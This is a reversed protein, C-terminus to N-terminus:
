QRSSLDFRASAEDFWVGYLRYDNSAARQFGYREYLLQSRINDGQTSLGIRRAGRQVLLRVAFSLSALGLGAGQMDPEVAIRDLHGWLQYTTVGIYTAIHGEVRGVWVEVEPTGLYSTFELASNWWLWPFAAHDLEVLEAITADDRTSVRQFTLATNTALPARVSGLEYTIVNELPDLGVREYFAPRRKEDLELTLLVEAGLERARTKLASVIPVANQNASLEKLAAIEDRHRWPGVLGFERTAPMWVSRGSYSRLIRQM